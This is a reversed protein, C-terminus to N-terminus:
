AHDSWHFKLKWLQILVYPVGIMIVFAQELDANTSVIVHEDCCLDSDKHGYHVIEHGPARMM